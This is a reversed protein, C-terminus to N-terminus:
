IGKIATYTRYRTRFASPLVLTDKVLNKQIMFGSDNDSFSYKSVGTSNGAFTQTSYELVRIKSGRTTFFFEVDSATENIGVYPLSLEVSSQANSAKLANNLTSDVTYESNTEFPRTLFVLGVGGLQGAEQLNTSKVTKIFLNDELIYDIPNSEKPIILAPIENSSVVSFSKGLSTFMKDFATESNDTFDIVQYGTSTKVKSFSINSNAVYTTHPMLVAKDTHIIGPCIPCEINTYLGKGGLRKSVYKLYGKLRSPILIEPNKLCLENLESVIQSTIKSINSNIYSKYIYALRDDIRFIDKKTVLYNAAYPSFKVANSAINVEKTTLANNSPKVKSIGGSSNFYFNFGRFWLSNTTSNFNAKSTLTTFISKADEIKVKPVKTVARSSWSCNQSQCSGNRYSTANSNKDAILAEVDAKNMNTNQIQANYWFDNPKYSCDGSNNNPSENTLKDFMFSNKNLGFDYILKGSMDTYKILGGYVSRIRSNYGESSTGEQVCSHIAGLNFDDGDTKFCYCGRYNVKWMLVEEFSPKNSAKHISVGSSTKQISSKIESNEFTPATTTYKKDYLTFSPRSIFESNSSVYLFGDKIQIPLLPYNWATITKTDQYAVCKTEAQSLPCNASVGATLDTLNFNIKSGAKLVPVFTDIEPDISKIFKQLLYSNVCWSKLKTGDFFLSKVDNAVLTGTSSYKDVLKSFSIILDTYDASANRNVGAVVGTTLYGDNVLFDKSDHLEKLLSLFTTKPSIKALYDFIFDDGYKKFGLSIDFARQIQTKDTKYVNVFNSTLSEKSTINYFSQKITEFISAKINDLLTKALKDGHGITDYYIQKEDAIQEYYKIRYTLSLDNVEYILDSYVKYIKDFGTKGKATLGESSQEIKYKECLENIKATTLSSMGAIEEFLKNQYTKNLYGKLKSMSDMFKESVIEVGKKAKASLGVSLSDIKAQHVEERRKLEATQLGLTEDYVTKVNDKGIINYSTSLEVKPKIVLTSIYSIDGNKINEFFKNLFEDDFNKNATTVYDSNVVETMKFGDLSSDRTIRKVTPLLEKTANRIQQETKMGFDSTTLYRGLDHDYLKFYSMKVNAGNNSAYYEPCTQLKVDNAVYNDGCVYVFKNTSRNYRIRFTDNNVPILNFIQNENPLEASEWSALYYIENETGGRGDLHRKSNGPHNFYCLNGKLFTIKWAANGVSGVSGWMVCPDNTNGTNYRHICYKTNFNLVISVCNSVFDKNEFQTKTRVAEETKGYLTSNKLIEIDSKTFYKKTAPNYLKFNSQSYKASNSKAIADSTVVLKVGTSLNNNTVYFFFDDSWNAQIRFTDDNIPVLRFRSDDGPTQQRWIYLSQEITNAGGKSVLNDTTSFPNSFCFAGSEDFTMTWKANEHTLDNWLHVYTNYTTKGTRHICFNKNIDPVICVTLSNSSKVSLTNKVATTEEEDEFYGYRSGLFSGVSGPIEEKFNKDSFDKRVLNAAPLITATEAGTLNNKSKYANLANNYVSSNKEVLEKIIASDDTM